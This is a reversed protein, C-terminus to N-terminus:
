ASVRATKLRRPKSDQCSKGDFITNEFSKQDPKQTRKACNHLQVNHEGTVFGKLSHHQRYGTVTCRTQERWWLWSIERPLCWGLGCYKRWGEHQTTSRLSIYFIYVLKNEQWFLAFQNQGKESYSNKKRRDGLDPHHFDVQLFHMEGEGSKLATDFSDDVV